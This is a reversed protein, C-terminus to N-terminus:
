LFLTFLQFLAFFRKREPDRKGVKKKSLFFVGFGRQAGRQLQFQLILREGPPTVTFDRANSPFSAVRVQSAGPFSFFRNKLNKSQFLFVLLKM